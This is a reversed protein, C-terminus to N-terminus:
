LDMITQQADGFEDNDLNDIIEAAALEHMAAAYKLKGKPTIFPTHTPKFGVANSNSVRTGTEKLVLLGQTVAKETPSNKNGIKMLDGRARLWDFMFKPKCKAYVPRILKTFDGIHIDGSHARVADAFAAKSALEGNEELLALNDEALAENQQNSILLKGEAVERAEDAQLALVLAERMTTPVPFPTAEPRISVSGTEYLENLIKNATLEYTPFCWMLFSHALDKHIWTGVNDGGNNTIIPESNDGNLNIFESLLKQTRASSVWSNVKKGALNAVENVRMMGDDNVAVISLDLDLKIGPNKKTSVKYIAM